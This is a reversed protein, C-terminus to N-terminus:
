RWDPLYHMLEQTTENVMRERLAIPALVEGNPRWDRLRQIINVDNPRIWAQYYRDSPNRQGLIALIKNREHNSAVAKQLLSAM